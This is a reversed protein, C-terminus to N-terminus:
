YKLILKKDKENMGYESKVDNQIDEGCSRIIIKIGTFFRKNKLVNAAFTGGGYFWIIKIKLIKVYM